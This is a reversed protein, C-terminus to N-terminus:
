LYQGKYNMIMTDPVTLKSKTRLPDKFMCRQRANGKANAPSGQKFNKKQDGTRYKLRSYSTVM